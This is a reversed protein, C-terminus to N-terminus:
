EEITVEVHVVGHVTIGDPDTLRRMLVVRCQVLGHSTAATEAGHLAAKVADMTESCKWKRGQDRHWIDVQVTEVQAEICDADDPVADMSGISIHPYVVNEPPQDYVRGHVRAQVGADAMLTGIIFDHVWLSTSM